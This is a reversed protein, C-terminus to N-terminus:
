LSPNVATLIGDNTVFPGLDSEHHANPAYSFLIQWGAGAFMEHLAKHVDGGHTGIHIRRVKRRLLNMFPPFVKIEAQQIDSELYDVRDLPGLIERLTVASLLKIEIQWHYGGMLPRVVGTTRNYLLNRLTKRARGFRCLERFSQDNTIISQAGAGPGGVPFFVPEGTDDIAARILWHDDPDIGNDRLHREMWKFNNPEPELLVLKCPMPNLREIAKCAGVAQAGYCAGLTIMTFRDRAARATEIWNVAEFWGEGNHGNGIAPISTAQHRAVAMERTAGWDLRFEVDTLVGLFDVLFGEPVQGSWPVVEDLTRQHTSLENM